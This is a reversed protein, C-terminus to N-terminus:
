KKQMNMINPLPQPTETIETHAGTGYGLLVMESGDSSKVEVIGIPVKNTEWVDLITKGNSKKVIKIHKATFTGGPVTIRENGLIEIKANAKQQTPQPAFPVAQGMMGMMEPSIEMAPQDGIKVIIKKIDSKFNQRSMRIFGKVIIKKGGQTTRVEVWVYRKGEIKEEGVIGFWMVMETGNTTAKIKAWTGVKLDDTNLFPFIQAYSITAFIFLFLLIAGCILVTKRM